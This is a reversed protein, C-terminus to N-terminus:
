APLTAVSLANGYIMPCLGIIMTPLIRLLVPTKKRGRSKRGYVVAIVVFVARKQGFIL